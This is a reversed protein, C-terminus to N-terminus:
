GFNNKKNFPKIILKYFPHPRYERTNHKLIYIERKSNEENGSNKIVNLKRVYIPLLDINKQILDEIKIKM